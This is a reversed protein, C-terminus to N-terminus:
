PSVTVVSPAVPEESRLSIAYHGAQRFILEASLESRASLTGVVLRSPGYDLDQVLLEVPGTALRDPRNDIAFTLRGHEGARVAGSVLRLAAPRDSAPEAGEVTFAACASVGGPGTTTVVEWIGGSPLRVPASFHGMSRPEFRQEFLAIRRPRDGRITLVATPQDTLGGGAPITVALDSGPRVSLASASRDSGVLRGGGTEDKDGAPIRVMRSVPERGTQTPTLDIVTARPVAGHTLVLASGASVIEDVPDTLAMAPFAHLRALDLVVAARAAHSWALAFRGDDKVFMGEPEFALPLTRTRGPDDLWRVRAAAGPGAEVLVGGGAAVTGALTGAPLRAPERGAELLLASGDSATAVARGRGAARLAAPGPGIEHVRRRVGSAALQVLRPADPRDLVLIDDGLPVLATPRDLDGTFPRAGGWPLRVALVDGTRPRSVLASAAAEHLLLSSVPEGLPTVSLLNASKLNHRPDIVSLRESGDRDRGLALVFSRELPIDDQSIAGTARAAWAANACSPQAESRLRRLWARPPDVAVARGTSPDSYALTLTLDDGARLGRGAEERAALTITVRQGPGVALRPPQEQADSDPALASLALVVTLLGRRAFM